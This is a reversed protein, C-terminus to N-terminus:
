ATCPGLGAGSGRGAPVGAEQSASSGRVELGVGSLSQQAGARGPDGVGPSHCICEGGPDRGRPREPGWGGAPFWARGHVGGARLRLRVVLPDGGRPGPVLKAHCLQMGSGAPIGAGQTSGPDVDVPERPLQEVLSV